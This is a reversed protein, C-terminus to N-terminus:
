WPAAVPTPPMTRSMMAMPARGIASRLREVLEDPTADAGRALVVLGVVAGQDLAFAVVEAKMSDISVPVGLAVLAALVPKLRTLEDAAAVKQAGKYPRTSEAGIDIIDAGEGEAIRAAEGMWRAERGALQLMLPGQGDHRAARKRSEAHAECFERSAIMESVVLGAGHGYALKRFPADSIGSMPALFVRNRAVVPGIAIPAELDIPM